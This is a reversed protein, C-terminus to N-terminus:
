LQAGQTRYVTNDANYKTQCPFTGGGSESHFKVTSWFTCMELGTLITKQTGFPALLNSSNTRENIIVVIM